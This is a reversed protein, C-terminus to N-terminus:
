PTAAPPRTSPSWSSGGAPVSVPFHMWAGNHLRRSRSPRPRRHRRQRHRERPPRDAGLRRAYLHLTGSYASTFNLRVRIQTAHYWGTRGASPGTPSELARVDTTSPAWNYRLARSSPTPRAAAPRRPRQDAGNWGGLVYGDVGYMGVWDGQVGPEYPPRAAASATPPTGRRGPVPGRCSPTAAPSRDVTILVSGGAPVSIPFHMWAGNNFGTTIPSPRPGTGDNVTVNERRTPRRGLRRAYLHLTGTYANTFNLRVRIQDRPVLRDGPARDPRPEPARPRRHDLSAWHLALARSSPSRRAPPLGVLDSTPRELRRPRLRRRRLHRGLRGPRRARVATPPPPPTPPTGAGGLFLGSLVANGGAVQRGHDPGLRRGPRQGPLADLRRRHLRRHDRGDQAPATTSPSTRRPATTADWDVRTSTSRAPTPTPSTSGSGSRPRTTGPRRGASPRTPARSRASTPPRRRGATARRGARAHLTVGPLSRSTAPRRELRRPRLRRRRVHRGLQGAVQSM